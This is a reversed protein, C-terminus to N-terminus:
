HKYLSWMTDRVKWVLRTENKTFFPLITQRCLGCQHRQEGSRWVKWVFHYETANSFSWIARIKTTSSKVDTSLNDINQMQNNQDSINSELFHCNESLPVYPKWPFDCSNSGSFCCSYAYLILWIYLWEYDRSGEQLRSSQLCRSCRLRSSEPWRVNGLRALKGIDEPSIAKIDKYKCEYQYQKGLDGPSVTCHRQTQILVPQFDVSIDTKNIARITEYSVVKWAKTLIKVM